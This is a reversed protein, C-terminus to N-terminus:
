MQESDEEEVIKSKTELSKFKSPLKVIDKTRSMSRSKTFEKEDMNLVDIVGTGIRTAKGVMISASVGDLSDKLGKSAADFFNDFPQEFSAKALVGSQETDIGYRNVPKIDGTYTMANILIYLHKMNVSGLVKHFEDELSTKVAEIGFIDKVDWISNSLTSIKKNNFSSKFNIYPHYMLEKLNSGVTKVFFNDKDYRCDKIGRIGSVSLNLIQPLYNKITYMLKSKEDKLFEYVNEDSDDTITELRAKEILFSEYSEEDNEDDPISNFNIIDLLEEKKNEDLNDELDETLKDIDLTDNFWIDIIGLNDPFHVCYLEEEFKNIISSIEKLTKQCNFIVSVDFHLRIGIKYNTTSKYFISFFQYYDKEFNTLQNYSSIISYKKIKNLCSDINYFKITSECIKKYRYLRQYDAFYENQKQEKIRDDDNKKFLDNPYNVTKKDISYLSEIEKIFFITDIPSKMDKTKTANLLENLRQIGMVEDSKKQGSKHFADLSEQTNREGISTGATIGVMEGPQVKSQHYFSEIKNRLQDINEPYIEISKLQKILDDRINFNICSAIEKPINTDLTIVELIYEIEDETLPRKM